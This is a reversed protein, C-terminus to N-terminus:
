DGKTVGKGVGIPLLPVAVIDAQINMQHRNLTFLKVPYGTNIGLM